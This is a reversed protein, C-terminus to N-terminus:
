FSIINDGTTCYYIYCYYYHFALMAAPMKNRRSGQEVLISFEEQTALPSM